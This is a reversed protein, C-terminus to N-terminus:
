INHETVVKIISNMHMFDSIDQLFITDTRNLWIEDRMKYTQILTTM